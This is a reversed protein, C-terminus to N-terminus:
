KNKKQWYWVTKNVTAKYHLKFDPLKVGGAGNEKQHSSQGNWTNQMEM